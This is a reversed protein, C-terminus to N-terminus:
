KPYGFGSGNIADQFITSVGNPYTQTPWASEGELKSPLAEVEEIPYIPEGTLRNLVFFHGSKTIQALAKIKEGEKEVTILNPPASLDRDWLDHHRTQFHWLREGTNANLAIICNAFLNQGHRDGGYFDFSASGTPVFVIEEEYDVTMGTWSNAGGSKLHANEPWTEHGFEGPFPITHFIWKREGTIVDFARIHGPAHDSGESTRGGVIILNKFIAGPSNNGYYAEGIDRDLGKKLDIAGDEGFSEIPQGTAPDIAFLNAGVSFFLRAQKGDQWYSLGRNVGLSTLNTGWEAPDFTWIKVGTQANLAFLHLKASTGYLVGDIVLPNCQIQSRKSTDRGGSFYTWKLELHQVNELNIQDFDKYQNREAGGQYAAWNPDEYSSIAPPGCHFFLFTISVFLSVKFFASTCYSTM